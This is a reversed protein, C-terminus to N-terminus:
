VASVKKGFKRGVHSSTQLPGDKGTSLHLRYPATGLPPGGVPFSGAAGGDARAPGEGFGLGRVRQPAEGARGPGGPRRGRGALGAREDVDGVGDLALHHGPGGAM